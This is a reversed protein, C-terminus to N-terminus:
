RRRIEWRRECRDEDDCCDDVVAQLGPPAAMTVETRLHDRRVICTLAPTAVLEPPQWERPVSCAVHPPRPTPEAGAVHAHIEIHRCDMTVEGLEAHFADHGRVTGIYEREGILLQANDGERTLTWVVSEISHTTFLPADLVFTERAPNAAHHELVPAPKAACAALAVLALRM